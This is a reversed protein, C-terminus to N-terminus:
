VLLTICLSQTVRELIETYTTQMSLSCICAHSFLSPLKSFFDQSEKKFSLTM